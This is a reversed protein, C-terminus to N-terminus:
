CAGTQSLLIRDNEEELLLIQEILTGIEQLANHVRARNASSWDRRGQQWLVRAGGDAQELESIVDLCRRKQHLVENVEQIGAGHQMIEGQHRSLELLQRYHRYEEAYLALLDAVLQPENRVADPGTARLGAM